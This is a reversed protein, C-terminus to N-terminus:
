QGTVPMKGSASLGPLGERIRASFAPDDVAAKARDNIFSRAKLAEFPLSRDLSGVEYALEDVRGNALLRWDWFRKRAYPKTHGRINTTCNSTLANYWEPKDRLRNVQRLYDLLVLRATAPDTTLRYLYVHEGRYNTRLRVLDREDALVYTLEYQRFFGRLASYQEGKEKRTEISICLYDGGEFGFSLMTHAILRSGWYVLFLDVSQLKALDYTKDYYRVAYDTESRYDFNRINHVTVENGNLDAYPLVAVDTQWDRSNSPPTLLFWCVVVGLAGLFVLRAMWQPRLWLRVAVLGLAYGAAAVSRLWGAPLNSYYIALIAWVAALALMVELVVGL